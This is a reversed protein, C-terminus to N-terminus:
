PRPQTLGTEERNQTERYAVPRVGFSKKFERNLHSADTFGCSAAIDAVTRDSSTLLWVTMRMRIQRDYAVPSQGIEAQFLRELQRVSVDLRRALDPLTLRKGIHQEMLLIARRIKPNSAPKLGLPYPQPANGKQADDVLLIRLAKQVIIADFHRLLIAAAVDISASGGSCTIRRRDIVFLRDAVLDAEAAQPFRELFDWYHFWSVCIRYGNMIDARMLAFVGTCIGVVTASSEGASRIFRITAESAAPGSHLLGGVVVVYDFPETKDFTAWPAIQIGCSARVPMINEGVVMWACRVPRSMDGEDSALRLLDVFGSFATLTFNPLLVIGFRLPKSPEDSIHLTNSIM